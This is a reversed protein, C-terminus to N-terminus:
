IKPDIIEQIRSKFWETSALEKPKIGFKSISSKDFHDKLSYAKFFIEIDDSNLYEIIDNERSKDLIKDNEIKLELYTKRAQKYNSIIINKNKNKQEILDKIYEDIVLNNIGLQTVNSPHYLYNEFCYYKLIYYNPYKKKLRDIETDLLFDRDRLGYKEPRSRTQTFVGHSDKEPIFSVNEFDLNNLLESNKNECYILKDKSVRGTVISNLLMSVNVELLSNDCRIESINKSEYRKLSDYNYFYPNPNTSISCESCNCQIMEEVKLRKFDKNIELIHKRIIALFEKKNKGTLTITIKNEFYRERVLAYTEEYFLVVGYRWYKDNWIDRHMKVILRSLIGKPMFKYKLEFQTPNDDLPFNFDLEDVPLLRPVLFDGNELEFCLDFKKNRMLCLLQGMKERYEKENWIRYIDNSDFRGKQDIIKKDDLIKYVGKTIWEHNLFVTDKLELDDKFHLIVGLDHFYESLFMAGDIDRYHKKCIELYRTESIYNEGSQKLNELEIRIDVWVKPLANGIHSLNSTIEILEKKFSNFIHKKDEVLSIKYFKQLNPFAEQFERFPIEKTQQDCKNLVMIIPSQDGLIKIINLWYYFDEHRDEKRSETVIMYISRKTLFFQHTSHYIEQGGFDWVNIQLDRQIKPNIEKLDEHPIIWPQINIGETSVEEELKYNPNLLANSICTKGVRGEGVIILKAEYLYDKVDLEKIFNRISDKGRAVIEPPLFDFPNGELYLQDLNPLNAVQPPLYKIKNNSLNLYKLNTLLGVSETIEKIENNALNLKTLKKLKQISEPIEEIQNREIIESNIDNSLDIIMLNPCSDFIYQPIKKLGCNKLDLRNWGHKTVREIREKIKASLEM